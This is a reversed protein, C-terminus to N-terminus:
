STLAALKHHEAILSRIEFIPIGENYEGRVSEPYNPDGAHHLAVVDLTANFVPSGSSGGLTNTRYTVRTGNGNSSIVSKEDAAFQLPARDPHQAILLFSDADFEYGHDPLEYWGRARPDHPNAKTEGPSGQLRIVAYDLQCPKPLQGAVPAEDLPSPPSSDVLWDPEVVKFSEGNHTEGDRTRKYDFRAALHSPNYVGAHVSAIVHYNTMVTSPGVLFGTGKKKGAIEIACVRREMEWFGESWLTIDTFGKSADVLKELTFGAPPEPTIGLQAAARTFDANKPERARASALAAVVKALDPNDTRRASAKDIMMWLQGRAAAWRIVELTARPVTDSPPSILNLATDLDFTTFDDLDKRTPFASVLGDRLLEQESGTIPLM